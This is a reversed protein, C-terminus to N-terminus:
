RFPNKWDLMFILVAVFVAVYVLGRLTEYATM